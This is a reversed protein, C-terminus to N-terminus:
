FDEDDLAAALEEATLQKQKPKTTTKKKPSSAETIDVHTIKRLTSVLLGIDEEKLFSCAAPNEMLAQKLERMEDKLNEEGINLLNTIRLSIEEAAVKPEESVLM